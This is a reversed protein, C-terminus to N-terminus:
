QDGDKEATRSHAAGRTTNNSIAPPARSTRCSTRAEASCAKRSSPTSTTGCLWTLAESSSQLMGEQRASNTPLRPRTVDQLNLAAIHVLRVVQAEVQAIALRACGPYRHWPIRSRNRWLSRDPPSSREAASHVRTTRSCPLASDTGERRNGCRWSTGLQRLRLRGRRGGLDAPRRAAARQRQEPQAQGCTRRHQKTEPNVIQRHIAIGGATLARTNILKQAKLREV